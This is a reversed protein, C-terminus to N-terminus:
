HLWRGARKRVFTSRAPQGAGPPPPHGPPYERWYQQVDFVAQPLSALQAEYESGSLPPLAEGDPSEFVGEDAALQIVPSLLELLRADERMRQEWVDGRLDIGISFGQCWGKATLEGEGADNEVQGLIPEYTYRELDHLVMNHLRLILKVAREAQEVSRFPRGDEVIHSMWDQPALLGPGIVVASILGHVGDLLLGEGQDRGALIEHLEDLEGDDLAQMLEDAM